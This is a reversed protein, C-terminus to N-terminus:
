RPWLSTRWAHPGPAPLPRPVRVTWSSAPGAAPGAAARTAARSQVVALVTALEEPTPQGHLVQIPTM